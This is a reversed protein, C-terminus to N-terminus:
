LEMDADPLMWAADAAFSGQPLLEGGRLSSPAVNLVMAPSGPGESPVRSVAQSPLDTAHLSSSLLFNDMYDAQLPRGTIDHAQPGPCEVACFVHTPSKSDQLAAAFLTGLLTDPQRERRQDMTLPVCLFLGHMWEQYLNWVVPSFMVKNPPLVTPLVSPYGKENFWLILRWCHVDYNLM